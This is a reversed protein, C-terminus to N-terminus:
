RQREFKGFLENWKNIYEDPILSLGEGLLRKKVRKALEVKWGAELQIDMSEACKKIEPVIPKGVQVLTRLQDEPRLWRDLVDLILSPPFLDEIESREIDVFEDTLLVSEKDQQYTSSKLEKAMRKGPEDGDLLILPLRHDRGILISAITRATKTGGGPPFVLERSPTIKGAGILLSKITTLYYQDSIGEVIIPECGILLSEMISLNLASHVAFAAGAHPSNSEELRLNDTAKTTGCKDIYVKRARELRDADILFPSHTTYIIQNTQSLSNFFDSLDRQALPHLSHGPEDLLLISDAHEASSEVLFVLFFSLFWQLGTSRSELKVEEPRRDDSVWIQFFNGDAHFRFRYDGQKWWDKFEKTLKAGASQLLLARQVKKQSADDIQEESEEPVSDQGLRHIDRPELGVFKFLVRLTRAIAAEKLGLDDRELNQIAQPLYIDSDLNGYSSYYVFSPIHDLIARGTAEIKSPDLDSFTSLKESLRDVLSLVEPVIASTKAVEKPLLQRVVGTLEQTRELAIVDKDPLAEIENQLTALITTKLKAEQKLATLNSIAESTESLMRSVEIAEIPEPGEADPFDIKYKGDFYRSVHVRKLKEASLNTIESISSAIGTTDFEALVFRYNEPANTIEAFMSVPYDSNPEVEGERAPKLKWLPLLLNSKGSENIGIMATVDDVNIWGSNRVSRFNEVRYRLLKM